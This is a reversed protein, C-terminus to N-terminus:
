SADKKRKIGNFRFAARTCLEMLEDDERKEARESMRELAKWFDKVWRKSM